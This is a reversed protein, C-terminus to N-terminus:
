LLSRESFVLVGDSIYRIESPPEGTINPMEYAVRWNVSTECSIKRDEANRITNCQITEIIGAFIGIEDQFKM